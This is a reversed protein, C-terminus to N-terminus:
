LQECFAVLREAWRGQTARLREAGSRGIVEAARPDDWATKLREALAVPDGVPSLFGSVGDLIWDRHGSVDSAIVLRGRSMAEFMTQEGVSDWLSPVIVALASTLRHELGNAWTIDSAYKVCNREGVATLQTVLSPSPEESFLFECSVGELRQLAGILVSLGKSPHTSGFYLFRRESPRPPGVM